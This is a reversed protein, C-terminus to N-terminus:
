TNDHITINILSVVKHFNMESCVYRLELVSMLLSTLCYLLTSMLPTSYGLVLFSM